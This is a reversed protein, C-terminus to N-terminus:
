QAARRAERLTTSAISQHLVRFPSPLLTPLSTSFPLLENASGSIFPLVMPTTPTPASYALEDCFRRTVETHSDDTEVSFAPAFYAANLGNVIHVRNEGRRIIQGQVDRAVVARSINYVRLRHAFHFVAHTNEIERAALRLSSRHYERERASPLTQPAYAVSKGVSPCNPTGSNYSDAGRPAEVGLSSLQATM